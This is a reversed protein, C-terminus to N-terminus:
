LMRQFRLADGFAHGLATNDFIVWTEVGSGRVEAAIRGLFEDEYASYYVRPTGHLRYYRIAPWGGPTRAEPVCAPDAAVRAIRYDNLLDEVSAGFWTPHRPEFVVKGAFRERLAAFFETVIRGDFAVSPPLQILIPGLKGGLSTAQSFFEDMAPSVDELRRKHSIERPIKVSFRFDEPVGASWREYTTPRHPRYFSSNIEVANFRAAYRQLHTGETPFEPKHERPLNWGAIGTYTLVSASKM